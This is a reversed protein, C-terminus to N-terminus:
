YILITLSSIETNYVNHHHNGQLQGQDKRGLILQRMNPVFRKPPTPPVQSPNKIVLPLPTADQTNLRFTTSAQTKRFKRVDIRSFHPVKGPAPLNTKSTTLLLMEFYICPPDSHYPISSFFVTHCTSKIM